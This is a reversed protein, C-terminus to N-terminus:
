LALINRFNDSPQLIRIFLVSLAPYIIVMNDFLRNMNPFGLMGGGFMGGGFMGGGFMGGFPTVENTRARHQIPASPFARHGMLGGMMGFPDNFMSNIMNDMHRM